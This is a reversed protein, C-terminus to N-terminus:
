DSTVRALHRARRCSLCRRPMEWGNADFTQCDAPAILIACARCLEQSEAPLHEHNSRIKPLESDYFAVHRWLWGRTRVGKEAVM